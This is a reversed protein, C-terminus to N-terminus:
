FSLEEMGKFLCGVRGSLDPVLRLGNEPGALVLLRNNATTPQREEKVQNPKGPDSGIHHRPVGCRKALWAKV